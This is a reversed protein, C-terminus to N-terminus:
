MRMMDEPDWLNKTGAMAAPCRTNDRPSRQPRDVAVLCETLCTLARGRSHLVSRPGDPPRADAQHSAFLSRRTSSDRLASSVPQEAGDSDAGCRVTMPM